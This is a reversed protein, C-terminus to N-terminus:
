THHKWKLNLIKEVKKVDSNRDINNIFSKTTTISINNANLKKVAELREKKSGTLYFSKGLYNLEKIKLM